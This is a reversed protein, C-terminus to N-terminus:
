ETACCTLRHLRYDDVIPEIKPREAVQQIAAHLELSAPKWLPEPLPPMSAMSPLDDDGSSKVDGLNHVM